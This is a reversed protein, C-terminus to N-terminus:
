LSIKDLIGNLYAITIGYNTMPVNKDKAKMVRNFVLTKNFMCAGCHIIMDYKEIDDFDDARTFTFQLGDGFRKKLMAPIKVTGIDENIPPHTCAEAILIKENGKFNDFKKASEIFYAIDGKMKSFLVSFSTVKTIGGFVDYVKKFVRSDCIVLDAGHFRDRVSELDEDGVVISTMGKDLAERIAEVQAKILRGKPAAADQPMVMIITAKSDVLGDLLSEEKTDLVKKLASFIKERSSDDRYVIADGNDYSVDRDIAMIVKIVPKNYKELESLIAEDDNDGIYIFADAKSFEARTKKLREDSLATDDGFGATDIFVVPGLGPVEISKRVADTTTGRKDSVIAADSGMISNFLTSKGANVRGAIVVHKQLSRAMM